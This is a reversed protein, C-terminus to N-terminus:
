WTLGDPSVEYTRALGPVLENQVPDYHLLQDHILSLLLNEYGKNSEVFNYSSPVTFMQRLEDLDQWVREGTTKRLLVWRGIALGALLGVAGLLVGRVWGSRVSRKERVM